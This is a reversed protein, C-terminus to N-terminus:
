ARHSFGNEEFDKVAKEDVLPGMLTDPDLADGIRVQGYAGVLLDTVRDLISEHVFLRRTTTCRQGATGVAGFVIAPIAMQLDATEDLIIAGVALQNVAGAYIDRESAMRNLRAHVQIARQLHPVIKAFQEKEEATFAPEDKSRMARLRAVLGDPERTDSGLIHFVGAPELYQRYFESDQLESAPVLEELTVVQGLPLNVFPDIAFFRETYATVQWEDPAALIDDSTPEGPEPRRHNLILGADDEAPPRLVLSVVRADLIERLLPLFTEWPTDEMAGAYVADVLQDHSGQELNVKVLGPSSEEIQYHFVLTSPILQPTFFAM